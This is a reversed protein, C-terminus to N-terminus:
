VVPDEEAFPTERNDNFSEPNRVWTTKLNRVWTTKLSQSKRKDAHASEFWYHIYGSVLM